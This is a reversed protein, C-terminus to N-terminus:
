LKTIDNKAGTISAQLQKINANTKTLSIKIQKEIKDELDNSIVKALATNKDM